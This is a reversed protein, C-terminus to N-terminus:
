ASNQERTDGIIFGQKKLHELRTKIGDAFLVINGQQLGQDFSM